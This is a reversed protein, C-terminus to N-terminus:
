QSPLVLQLYGLYFSWALGHAVNMKREECIDSVEVESPGLVGLSKFLTYLVPVLVILEWSQDKHLLSQRTLYLLLGAMAAALLTKGGLGCAPLVHGLCSRGQYKWCLWSFPYCRPEWSTVTSIFGRKQLSGTEEVSTGQLGPRSPCLASIDRQQCVSM